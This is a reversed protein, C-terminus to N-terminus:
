IFVTTCHTFMFLYPLVAHLIVQVEFGTAYKRKANPSGTAFFAYCRVSFGAFKALGFLAVNSFNTFSSGPYCTASTCRAFTGFPFSFFQSGSHVIKQAFWLGTATLTLAIAISTTFSIFSLSIEFTRAAKRRRTRTKQLTFAFPFQQPQTFPENVNIMFCNFHFHQTSAHQNAKLQPFRRAILGSGTVVM